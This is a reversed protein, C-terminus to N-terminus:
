EVGKRRARALFSHGLHLPEGPLADHGQAIRKTGLVGPEPLSAAHGGDGDGLVGAGAVADLAREVEHVVHCLVGVPRDVREPGEDVVRLHNCPKGAGADCYDVVHRGRCSRGKHKARVAHHGLHLLDRLLAAKGHHVGGAGVHLAHVVRGLAELAVAVLHEDHALRPMGLHLGDEAM